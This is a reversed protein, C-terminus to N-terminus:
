SLPRSARVPEEQVITEVYEPAAHVPENEPDQAPPETAAAPEAEDEAPASVESAIAHLENEIQKLMAILDAYGVPRALDHSTDSPDPDETFSVVVPTASGDAEGLSVYKRHNADVLLVDAGQPDEVFRCPPLEMGSALDVSTQVFVAEWRSLGVMSIRLPDM